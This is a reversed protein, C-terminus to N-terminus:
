DKKPKNLGLGVIILKLAAAAAAPYGAALILARADDLNPAAGPNAGSMGLRILTTVDPMRLQEDRTRDLFGQVGGAIEGDLAEFEGIGARLTFVTGDHLPLDVEGRLPRANM